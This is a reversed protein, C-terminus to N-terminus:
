QTGFLGEAVYMTVGMWHGDETVISKLMTAVFWMHSVVLFKLHPEDVNLNAIFTFLM